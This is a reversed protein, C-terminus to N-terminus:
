LIWRYVEFVEALERGSEIGHTRALNRIYEENAYNRHQQSRYHGLATVKASAGAPQKFKVLITPGSAAAAPAACALALLGIFAACRRGVYVFTPM